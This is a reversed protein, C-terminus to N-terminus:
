ITLAKLYKKAPYKKWKFFIFSNQYTNRSIISVEIYILVHWDICRKLFIICLFGLLFLFNHLRSFVVFGLMYLLIVNFIQFVRWPFGISSSFDILDCSDLYYWLYMFPRVFILSCTCWINTIFYDWIIKFIIIKQKNKYFSFM